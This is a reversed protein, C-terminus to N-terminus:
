KVIFYWLLNQFCLEGVYDTLKFKVGFANALELGPNAKFGQPNLHVNTKRLESPTSVTKPYRSAVREPNADERFPARRGLTAL